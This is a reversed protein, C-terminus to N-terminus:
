GRNRGLTVIAEVFKEDGALNNWINYAQTRNVANPEIVDVAQEVLEHRRERTLEEQALVGNAALADNITQQVQEMQANTLPPTYYNNTRPWSDNENETM